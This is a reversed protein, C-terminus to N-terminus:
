PKRLFDFRSRYLLATASNRRSCRSGSGCSPGTQPGGHGGGPRVGSAGCGVGAGTMSTYPGISVAGDGAGCAGAVSAAGSSAGTSSGGISTRSGSGCGSSGQVREGHANAYWGRSRVNASKGQRALYSQRDTD